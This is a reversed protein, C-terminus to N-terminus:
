WPLGGSTCPLNPHTHSAAGQLLYIGATAPCVRMTGRAYQVTSTSGRQHPAVGFSFLIWPRNKPLDGSTRPLRRSLLLWLICAPLDGSNRPLCSDPSRPTRDSFYIGVPAPYGTAVVGSCPEFQPSGAHTPYGFPPTQVMIEELTSGRRHPAFLGAAIAADRIRPLDGDTRPLWRRAGTRRFIIPLGGSTRPVLNAVLDTRIRGPPGGVRTPCVSCLKAVTDGSPTSGRSEPALELM